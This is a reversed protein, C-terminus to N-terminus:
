EGLYAAIVEKNNKIETPTGTAIEKGFSIVKIWECIGMVLKMDHEILLISIKFTDRIKKIIKMLEETESPNMGAAPEDLLILKPNSASAYKPKFKAIQENLLEINSGGALAIIEFRDNLKEIVELAQRGISGTSGLISIKRKKM